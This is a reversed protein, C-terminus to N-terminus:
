LRVLLTTNPVQAHLIFAKSPDGAKNFLIYGVKLGLLLM